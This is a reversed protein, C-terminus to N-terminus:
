IQKIPLKEKEDIHFCKSILRVKGFAAPKRILDKQNFLVEFATLGTIFPNGLAELQLLNKYDLKKKNL